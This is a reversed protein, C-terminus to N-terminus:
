VYPVIQMGQATKITTSIEKLRKQSSKICLSRDKSTYYGINPSVCLYFGNTDVLTFLKSM